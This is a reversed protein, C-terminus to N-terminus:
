VCNLWAQPQHTRKSLHVRRKQIEQHFTEVEPLSTTPDDDVAELSDLIQLGSDFLLAAPLLSLHRICLPNVVSEPIRLRCRVDYETGLSEFDNSAEEHLIM